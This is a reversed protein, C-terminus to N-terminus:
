LYRYNKIKSLFRIINIYAVDSVNLQAGIRSVDYILEEYLSPKVFASYESQMILSIIKEIFPLYAYDLLGNDNSGIVKFNNLTIEKILNPRYIQYLFKILTLIEWHDELCRFDDVPNISEGYDIFRLEGKRNLMFQSIQADVWLLM